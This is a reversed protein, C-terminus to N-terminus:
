WVQKWVFLLIAAAAPLVQKWVFLLIAAAAPLLNIIMVPSFTYPSFEKINLYDECQKDAVLEKRLDSQGNLWNDRTIRHLKWLLVYREINKWMAWGFVLGLGIVVLVTIGLPMKNTFYALFVAGAAAYNQLAFKVLIDEIHLLGKLLLEYYDLADSM